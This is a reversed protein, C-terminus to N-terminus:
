GDQRITWAMVLMAGLRAVRVRAQPSLKGIDSAVLALARDPNAPLSARGPIKELLMIRLFAMFQDYDDQPLRPIAQRLERQLQPLPLRVLREIHERRSYYTTLAEAGVEVFSKSRELAEKGAAKLRDWWNSM